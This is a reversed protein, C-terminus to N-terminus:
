EDNRERSEQASPLARTAVQLLFFMAMSFLLLLAVLPATEVVGVSNFRNWAAVPASEPTPAIFLLAGFEGAARAWALVAGLFIGRSALPLAVRRFASWSPAGLTRASMELGEPVADFAAIAPRALFPMAVFVQAACIGLLTGDFRLGFLNFFTEGLFQQRGLVAVLAIGAVSQPVVIPVDMLSLLLTRGPFRLRSMAYALPVTFLALFLTSATATLLTVGIASRVREDRLVRLLNHPDEGLLVIIVPLLVLFLLALGLGLFLLATRSRLLGRAGFLAAVIFLSIFTSEWAYPQCFTFSLTVCWFCALLRMSRSCAALGLAFLLFLAEANKMGVIFLFFLAFYGAAFAVWYRAPMHRNLKVGVYFVILNVMLLAGSTLADPALRNGIAAHAAILFMSGAGLLLDGAGRLLIVAIVVNAALLLLNFLEFPRVVGLMGLLGMAAVHAALLSAVIATRTSRPVTM